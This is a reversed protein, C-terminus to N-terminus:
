TVERWEQSPLAYVSRCLTDRRIYVLVSRDALKESHFIGDDLMIFPYEIVM